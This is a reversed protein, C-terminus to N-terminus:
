ASVEGIIQFTSEASVDIEDYALVAVDPFEDEILERVLARISSITVLSPSWRGRMLRELRRRIATTIQELETADLGTAGAIAQSAALHDLLRSELSAGLTFSAVTEHGRQQRAVITRKLGQRVYQVLDALAPSPGVALKPHVALRDDLVIRNVTDVVVRDFLALRELIAPLDLVSVGERLLARLVRVIREPRVERLAALVVLREDQALRNLEDEVVSRNILRWAERQVQWSICRALYSWITWTVYGWPQLETAQEAPVAVVDADLAPAHLPRAKQVEPWLDAQRAEVLAEGVGPGAFPLSPRHNVVIRFTAQSLSPDEEVVIQVRVGLDFFISEGVSELAQELTLGDPLGNTGDPQAPESAPQLAAFYDRSLRVRVVPDALQVVADELLAQDDDATGPQWENLRDFPRESTPLPIGLDLIERCIVLARDTSLALDPSHATSAFASRSTLYVRGLSPRLLDSPHKRLLESTTTTVLDVLQLRKPDSVGSPPALLRKLWAAVQQCPALNAGPELHRNWIWALLDDSAVRSREGAIVALTPGDRELSVDVVAIGPLGFGALLVQLEARATSEIEGFIGSDAQSLSAFPPGLRISVPVGLDDDLPPPSPPPYAVLVPRTPPSAAAKTPRARRMRARGGTGPQGVLTIRDANLSALEPRRSDSLEREALVDVRPFELAVLRALFPRLEPRGVVVTVPRGDTTGGLGARLAALLEDRAVPAMALVNQGNSRDIWQDLATEFASATPVLRAEARNGPLEERLAFRIAEAVAIPDGGPTWTAAFATLIAKANALPMREGLLRRLSRVFDKTAAGGPGLIAFVDGGSPTTMEVVLAKWRELLTELQNFGLLQELNQSAVLEAHRAVYDLPNWLEVGMPGLVQSEVADLWAGDAEGTVPNLAWAIRRNARPLLPDIKRYHPCYVLTTGSAGAEWPPRIEGSAVVVGFIHIGYVGGPSGSALSSENYLSIRPEPPAFGYRSPFEDVGRRVRQEVIPWSSQIQADSLGSQYLLQASLGVQLPASFLARDYADFRASPLGANGPRRRRLTSLAARADRWHRDDGGPPLQWWLMREREVLWRDLQELSSMGAFVNALDVVARELTADRTLDVPLSVPTMNALEIWVSDFQNTAWRAVAIHWRYWNDSRTAAYSAGSEEVRTRRTDEAERASVFARLAAEWVRATLDDHTGESNDPLPANVLQRALLDLMEACYLIVQLNSSTAARAYSELIRNDKIQQALSEKAATAVNLVDRDYIWTLAWWADPDAHLWDWVVNRLDGTYDKTGAPDVSRRRFRPVLRSRRTESTKVPGALRRLTRLLEFHTPWYHDRLHELLQQVKTNDTGAWDLSAMAWELLSTAHLDTLDREWRDEAFPDKRRVVSWDFEHDHRAGRIWLWQHPLVKRLLHYTDDWAVKERAEAGALSDRAARLQQEIEELTPQRSRDSPRGLVSGPPPGSSELVIPSATVASQTAKEPGSAGTVVLDVLRRGQEVVPPSDPRNPVQRASRQNPQDGFTQNVVPPNGAVAPANKLAQELQEVQDKAEAPRLDWRVV